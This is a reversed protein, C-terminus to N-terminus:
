KNTARIKKIILLTAVYLVIALLAIGPLLLAPPVAAIGSDSPAPTATTTTACEEATQNETCSYVEAGYANSGYAQAFINLLVINM